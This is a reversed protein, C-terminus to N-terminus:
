LDATPRAPRAVPQGPLAASRGAVLSGLLAVAAMVVFILLFVGANGGGSGHLGAFIAGGLGILVISALAESVQLAASNAGQEAPASGELVLVSLSTVGLGMGLGTIVWGLAASWVPVAPSVSAAVVLIGLGVLALGITVLRERPVRLRPRGQYWAGVAWTLAGGTLSVGAWTTALGRQEVLMLPVFTSAGFFAGAFIGRLGVVAPLGRALRVTGRPLLRPVSPALLMVGAAVFPVSAWTPEQGAYQLLGTGAAAATAPLLRTGFRRGPAVDRRAVDMGRLHPLVLLTGAVVLPLVVLFVARWSVRDALLGAVPPGVLAPVIWGGSMASFVRPRVADPYARAVVVYLAVVNLGAGFGQVGRAVVLAWMTPAAAAMGLGVSFVASATVFALVPGRRDSLEGGAVMGLLSTTLFLSFALGYLSLGGLDRAAVPMATSVAIAEFAIAVVVGVVGVLLRRGRADFGPGRPTAAPPAGAPRRGDLVRHDLLRHDLVAPDLVAPDLVPDPLRRDVTGPADTTTTM